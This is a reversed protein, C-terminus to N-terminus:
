SFASQILRESKVEIGYKETFAAAYEDFTGDQILDTRWTVFNVEGTVDGDISNSSDDGGTAACSSLLLAATAASAVLGAITKRSAM